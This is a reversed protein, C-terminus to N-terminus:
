MQHLCFAEDFGAECALDYRVIPPDSQELSMQLAQEAQLRLTDFTYRNKGGTTASIGIAAKVQIRTDGNRFKLSSIKKQFRISAVHARFDNTTLLLISFKGAGLYAVKEDTRCAQGLYDAIAMIIQESINEDLKKFADDVGKVQICLLSTDENSCSAYELIRSCYETFSSENLLGTLKDYM